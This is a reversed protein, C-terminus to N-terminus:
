GGFRACAMHFPLTDAAKNSFASHRSSQKDKLPWLTRQTDGLTKTVDEQALIQDVAESHLYRQTRPTRVTDSTINEGAFGRVSCTLFNLAQKKQNRKESNPSVNLPPHRPDWVEWCRRM